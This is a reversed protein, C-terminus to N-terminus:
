WIVIKNEHSYIYLFLDTSVSQLTLELALNM